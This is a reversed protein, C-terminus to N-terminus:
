SAPGEVKADAAAVTLSGPKEAKRLIEGLKLEGAWQRKDTELKLPQFTVRLAGVPIEQSLSDFGRSEWCGPAPFLLSESYFKSLAKDNKTAPDVPTHLACQLQSDCNKLEFYYKLPLGNGAFYLMEGVGTGADNWKVIYATLPAPPPAAAVNAAPAPAAALQPKV